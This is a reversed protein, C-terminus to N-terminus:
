HRQVDREVLEFRVDDDLFRTVADITKDIGVGDSAVTALGLEATRWDDQSGVEAVSLNFRNRLRERVSTVVQRKDKISRAAYLRLTVRVSAVIM